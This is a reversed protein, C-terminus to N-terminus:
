LFLILCAPDVKELPKASSTKVTDLEDNSVLTQPHQLGHSLHKGLGLVLATYYMEVPVYERNYGFGFDFIHRLHELRDVHGIRKLRVARM